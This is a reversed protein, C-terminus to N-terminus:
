PKRGGWGLGRVAILEIEGRAVAEDVAQTVGPYAGRYDHLWVIGGQRLMPLWAALEAVTPAYEHSTDIMLMDIPPLTPFLAAAEVSDGVFGSWGETVGINSLFQGASGVAEASHDVTWVNADPREAYVASATTGSGAGLDVVKIPGAPLTSVLERILDVDDWDLFRRSVALQHAHCTM